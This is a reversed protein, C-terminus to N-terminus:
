CCCHRRRPIFCSRVSGRQYLVLESPTGIREATAAATESVINAQGDVTNMFIAFGNEWSTGVMDMNFNGISREVENETLQSVYYQSGVLGIEEAGVFALRM